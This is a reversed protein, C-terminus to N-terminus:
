ITLVAAKVLNSYILYIIDKAVPVFLFIRGGNKFSHLALWPRVRTSGVAVSQLALRCIAITRSRKIREASQEKSDVAESANLSVSKRNIGIFLQLLLLEHHSPQM